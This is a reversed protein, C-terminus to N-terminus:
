ELAVEVKLFTHAAVGVLVFRQKQEDGEMMESAVGPDGGPDM